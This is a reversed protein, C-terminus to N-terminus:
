FSVSLSAGGVVHDPEGLDDLGDIAFTGLIHPVFSVTESLAIPLALDVFVHNGGDVGYYDDGVSIGTSFEASIMDTLALSYGGSWELYSGETEFDYYYTFGLGLNDSVSYGINLGLEQATADAETFFFATGGVNIDWNGFTKGVFAYLDLEDNADSGFSEATPNIYWVGFNFYVSDSIDYNLDVGLWPAHEGFDVGRFNYQSEYGATISGTLLPSPEEYVPAKSPVYLEGGIACSVAA